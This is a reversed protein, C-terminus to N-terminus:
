LLCPPFIGNQLPNKYNRRLAAVNGACSGHYHAYLKLPNPLKKCSVINLPFHTSFVLSPCVVIGGPHRRPSSDTQAAKLLSCQGLIVGSSPHLFHSRPIRWRSFGKIPKDLDTLSYFWCTPWAHKVPDHGRGKNPQAVHSREWCGSFYDSANKFM